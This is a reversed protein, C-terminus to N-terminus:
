YNGAKIIWYYDNWSDAYQYEKISAKPVYLKIDPFYPSLFTSSGLHPPRTSKFYVSKLLNCEAFAREGIETVNNPITVKELSPCYYFAYSGITTVSNPITISKLSRCYKFAGHGIKTVSNPITVSTLNEFHAFTYDAIHEIDSPIAIISSKRIQEIDRSDVFVKRNHDYTEQKEDWNVRCWTAWDPFHIEKLGWCGDFVREGIYTVGSGMTINILSRCNDFASNGITTVSNPITISKLSRCNYFASNGITTVSNPITISKLSTCNSFAAEEIETVSNPITISKLLTRGYFAKSGIKTVSNPITVSTLNEFLIFTTSAIHEVGSPIVVEKIQEINIGNIYVRKDSHLSAMNASCWTTLDTFHIEKLWWCGDFVGEGIYTVGSGITINILSRCDSFASDGITTVSNPITISKLSSCNSFAAEEIETVSNPIAVEGLSSCNSFAAEEIKTVSNPITINKLTRCEKFTSNKITSVSNPISISELTFIKSFGEIPCNVALIGINNKADYFNSIVNTLENHDFKIIKKDTTTYLYVNSPTELPNGNIDIFKVGNDFTIFIDKDIQKLNKILVNGNKNLISFSNDAKALFTFDGGQKIEDYVFSVITQWNSSLICYKGNLGVITVGDHYPKSISSYIPKVVFKGKKDIIGWLGKSRVFAYNGSFMRADEFKPKIVFKEALMSEKYGWKGDKHVTPIFNQASLIMPLMIFVSLILKRMNLKAKFEIKTEVFNVVLKAFHM